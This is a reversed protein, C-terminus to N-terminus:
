HQLMKVHSAITTTESMDFRNHLPETNSLGTLGDVASSSHGLLWRKQRYESAALGGPVRQM